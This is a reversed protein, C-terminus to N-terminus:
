LRDALIFFRGLLVGKLRTINGATGSLNRVYGDSLNWCVKDRLAPVRASRANARGAPESTIPGRTGSYLSAGM